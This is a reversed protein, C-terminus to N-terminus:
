IECILKKLDNKNESFTKVFLKYKLNREISEQKIVDKIENTMDLSKLYDLMIDSDHIEGLIDQIKKFNNINHANKNELTIEIAYRLKKFDKRLRHLEEIKNNDSLVVPINQM